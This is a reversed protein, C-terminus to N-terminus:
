GAHVACYAESRVSAVPVVVARADIQGRLLNTRRSAGRRARMARQHTAPEPRFRLAPGTWLM